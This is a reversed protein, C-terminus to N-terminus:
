NPLCRPATDRIGGREPHRVEPGHSMGQRVFGALQLLWTLAFSVHPGLGPPM